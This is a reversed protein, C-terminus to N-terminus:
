GSQLLRELNASRAHPHSVFRLHLAKAAIEPLTNDSFDSCTVDLYGGIMLVDVCHRHVQHEILRLVLHDDRVMQKSVNQSVNTSCNLASEPESSGAVNM